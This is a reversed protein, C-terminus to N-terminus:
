KEQIDIILDPNFGFANEDRYGHPNAVIRTNDINYDFCTHTHGHVWYNPQYARIPENLDSCFCYNMHRSWHDTQYKEHISMESPAHHTIVFPMQDHLICERVRNFIYRVATDHFQYTDFPVLRRGQYKIRHYDNMSQQAQMMVIPDAKRFDTWLTSGIFTVDRLAYTANDLMKITPYPYDTRSMREENWAQVRQDHIKRVMTLNSGYYEHNGPVWLIHGFSRDCEELFTKWRKSKLPCIDGAMILVDAPTRAVRRGLQKISFEDLIELHLDSIVKIKM